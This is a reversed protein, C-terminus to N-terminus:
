MPPPCAEACQGKENPGPSMPHVGLVCSIARVARMLPQNYDPPKAGRLRDVDARKGGAAQDMALACPGDGSASPNNCGTTACYCSYDQCGNEMACLFVTECLQRARMDGLTVCDNVPEACRACSCERCADSLGLDENWGANCELMADEAASDVDADDTGGDDSGGSGAAADATVGGMGGGAAGSSGGLGAMKPGDPERGAPADNSGIGGRGASSAGSDKSFQFASFDRTCGCWLLCCLLSVRLQAGALASGGVM